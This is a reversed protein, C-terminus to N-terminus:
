PFPVGGDFGFGGGDGGPFGPFGGCGLLAVQFADGCCVTAIETGGGMGFFGSGGVVCDDGDPCAMCGCDTNTNAVCGRGPCCSEGPSGGGGGFGGGGATPATCARGSEPCTCSGGVCSPANPTCRTGCAGCNNADSTVDICTGGCCAQGTGCAAGGCGCVGATCTEGPACANGISGCHMPNNSTNICQYRGGDNVCQEGTPCARFEGCACEPTTGGPRISCSIATTADCRLGCGNCNNFPSRPDETSTPRGDINVPQERDVCTTGCCREDAACTPSCSGIPGRDPLDGADFGGTSCVGDSCTGSCFNNCAGCHNRDVLNFVCQGACCIQSTACPTPCSADNGACGAAACALVFWSALALQKTSM